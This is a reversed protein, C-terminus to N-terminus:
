SIPKQPVISLKWQNLLSTTMQGGTDFVTLTWNGPMGVGTFLALDTDRAIGFFPAYLSATPDSCFPPPTSNCIRVPSNPSLTLPGISQGELGQVLGITRGGPATLDFELDDAANAGSGTTQLTVKVDRATKGKFKKKPVNITSRLIGDYGNQVKNPVFTNVTKSGNFTKSKKAEAVGGFIAGGLLAICGVVVFTGRRKSSKM